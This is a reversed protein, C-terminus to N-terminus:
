LFFVIILANAQEQSQWDHHCSLKVHM